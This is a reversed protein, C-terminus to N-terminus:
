DLFVVNARARAQNETNMVVRHWQNLYITAHDPHRVWGRVYAEPNLRMLRWNWGKADASIRILKEYNVASLGAPYQRCVYVETGGRRYLFEVLHAKGSGRSLRENRLIARPDITKEMGPVPIFFWEGQRVFADNKRTFRKEYNVRKVQQAAIVLEPKLAEMASRVGSVGPKDPVAAVFWHREDHGCLFKDKEKADRALLLLHREDARHDVIDFDIRRDAFLDFFEGKADHGIDIRLVRQERQLAFREDRSAAEPFRRVKVRAGLAEFKKQLLMEEM